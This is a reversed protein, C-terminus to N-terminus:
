SDSGQTLVAKYVQTHTLHHLFMDCLLWAKAVCVITTLLMLDNNDVTSETFSFNDFSVFQSNEYFCVTNTHLAHNDFM